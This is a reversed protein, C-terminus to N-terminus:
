TCGQTDVPRTAGAGAIVDDRIQSPALAYAETPDTTSAAFVLGLVTGRDDVVPGGSNGPVVAASLVEITRTVEVDAYIDYGRASEEGRVAAPVVQEGAGRPYGIVVGVTRPRPDAAALPLPTFRAGPVFLVAVDDARNFAVVTARRPVGNDIIDVRDSGAVVHANTVIAHPAVPWGSGASTNGCASSDAVVKVTARTAAQTGATDIEPPIPVPALSSGGLGAFVNPFGHDALATRIQALPAPVTPALADLARIIRSDHIQRDLTAYRSDQFTLGVYWASILMGGLAVVAGLGSDIGAVRTTLTHVRARFGIATGLGQLLFVCGVFVGAAVAARTSEADPPAAVARAVAPAAFTGALIGLFLGALSCGVWTVGRRFGAVAVGISILVIVLDVANM